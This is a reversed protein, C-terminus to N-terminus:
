EELPLRITFTTGKGLTSEVSIEGSHNQVVAACLALGLGFGKGHKKTSFFPDFVRDLNRKAIGRGNDRIEIVARGDEGSTAVTITGRGKISEAANKLLNKIARRMPGPFLKVKPLRGYKKQVRIRRGTLEKIEGIAKEICAKLDGPVAEGTDRAFHRFEEVIRQANEAASFSDRIMRATKRLDGESPPKKKGRISAQVAPWLGKLLWLNGYMVNLPNNIEHAIGSMVMGVSALKGAQILENQTHKLNDYAKRTDEAAWRLQEEIRKRDTIDAVVGRFGVPKGDRVVLSTYILVPHTRGDKTVMTYESGGTPEGTELIRKLNERVKPRDEPVFLDAANLGRDVDEQSYGSFEFGH